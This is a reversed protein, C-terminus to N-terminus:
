QAAAVYPIWVKMVGPGRNEWAYYPILTLDAPQTAARTSGLPSYLPTRRHDVDGM